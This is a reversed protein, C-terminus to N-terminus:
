ECSVHSGQRPCVAQLGAHDGQEDLGGGEVGRAALRQLPQLALEAVHLHDAAVGGPRRLGVRAQQEGGEVLLRSLYAM